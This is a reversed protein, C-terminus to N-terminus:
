LLLPKLLAVLNALAEILYCQHCTFQKIQNIPPECAKKSVKESEVKSKWIISDLLIHM